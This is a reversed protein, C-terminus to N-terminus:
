EDSRRPWRLCGADRTCRRIDDKEPDTLRQLAEELTIERAIGGLAVTLTRETVIDFASSQSPRSATPRGRPNGSQGKRFRGSNSASSGLKGSM